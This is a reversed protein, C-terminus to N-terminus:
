GLRPDSTWFILVISGPPDGLGVKLASVYMIASGGEQVEFFQEGCYGNPDELLDQGPFTAPLDQQVVFAYNRTFFKLRQAAPPLQYSTSDIQSFFCGMKEPGWSDLYGLDWVNAPFHETDDFEVNISGTQGLLAQQRAPDFSNALPPDPDVEAAAPAEEVGAESPLPEPIENPDPVPPVADPPPPSATSPPEVAPSPESPPEPLPVDALSLIDIPEDEPPSPEDLEEVETPAEKTPFPVFLLAGHLLISIGMLPAILGQWSWRRSPIKSAPPSQPADIKELTDLDSM